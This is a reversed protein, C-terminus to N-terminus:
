FPKDIGTRYLEEVEEQYQELHHVLINNIYSVISIGPAANSLLRKIKDHTDRNIYTSVRSCVGDNVLFLDRYTPEEEERRKKKYPGRKATEPVTESVKPETHATAPEVLKTRVPQVTPVSEPKESVADSKSPTIGNSHQMRPVDLMADRIADEDVEYPAKRSM